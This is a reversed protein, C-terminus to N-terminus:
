SWIVFSIEIDGINFKVNEGISQVTVPDAFEGVFWPNGAAAASWLSGHTHDEVAPSSVFEILADNTAVGLSAATRTVAVRSTNVSPNNMASAGPNGIHLKLYLTTPVPVGDLIANAGYTTLNM